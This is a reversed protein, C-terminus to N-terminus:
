QTLFVAHAAFLAAYFDRVWEPLREEKPDEWGATGDWPSLRVRQAYGHQQRL